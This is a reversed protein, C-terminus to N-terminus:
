MQPSLRAMAASPPIKCSMVFSLPAALTTRLPASPIVHKTALIRRKGLRGASTAGQGIVSAVRAGAPGDPGDDLQREIWGMILAM